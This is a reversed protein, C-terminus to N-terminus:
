CAHRIRPIVRLDRHKHPLHKVPQALWAAGPTSQPSPVLGAHRGLTLLSEVEKTYHALGTSHTHSHKPLCLDPRGTSGALSVFPEPGWHPPCRHWSKMLTCPPIRASGERSGRKRTLHPSLAVHGDHLILAAPGARRLGLERGLKSSFGEWIDHTSLIVPAWTDMAPSTHTCSGTGGM